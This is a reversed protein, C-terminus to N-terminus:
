RAFLAVRMASSIMDLSIMKPSVPFSFKWDIESFVVEEQVRGCGQSISLDQTDCKADRREHLNSGRISM